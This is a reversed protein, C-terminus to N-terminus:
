KTFFSCLDPYLLDNDAIYSDHNHGKLIMLEADPMTKAIDTFTKKYFIDDEGAIILSPINIKELTELEINPEELMLKFLPNKTKEYEKEVYEYCNKKFDSPKLNVGLLAMKKIVAPHKLALFISIVAGDSFGAVYVEELKLADIFALTDEAMTEYSYDETVTSKGHNRSDVAYVTFNGKLKETIKDFIHHDEGNGHLLILPKGAGAKNYELTIGNVKINM